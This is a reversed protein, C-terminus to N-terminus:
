AFNRELLELLQAACHEMTVNQQLHEWAAATIAQREDENRLYHGVVKPIEEIPSSVFHVGPIYPDPRYLPESVVLAQNCIGLLFRVGSMEGETRPFNLLIKTRNLLQTRAHGWCEPDHWDGKVVVKLGMSELQTIIKKRRPVHMIGLFLVDIDREIGLPQGQDLTYGLPIWASPIGHEALYEQRGRTTMVFQDVVGASHLRLISRANSYVDTVRRDRLLIKAIERLSLWPMPLRAARPPPLPEYHWVMVFPRQSKPLQELRQWLEPFWLMNGIVILVGDRLSGTETAALMEARHGREQFFDLISSKGVQADIRAIRREVIQIDM